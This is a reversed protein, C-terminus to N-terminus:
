AHPVVQCEKRHMAFEVGLVSGEKEKGKGGKRRKSSVVVKALLVLVAAVHFQTWSVM